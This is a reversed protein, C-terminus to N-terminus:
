SLGEDAKLQKFAELVLDQDETYESFLSLLDSLAENYLKKSESTKNEQWEEHASVALNLASEFEEPAQLSVYDLFEEPSDFEEM